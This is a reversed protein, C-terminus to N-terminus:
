EKFGPEDWHAVIYIQASGPIFCALFPDPANVESERHLDSVYFKVEPVERKIKEAIQLVPVPIALNYVIVFPNKGNRARDVNGWLIGPYESSQLIDQTRMPRWQWSSYHRPTEPGYKDTLFRYVQEEKYVKIGKKKLFRILRAEIFSPPTHDLEKWLRKQEQYCAEDIEDDLSVQELLPDQPKAVSQVTEPVVKKNTGFM